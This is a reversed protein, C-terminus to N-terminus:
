SIGTPIVMKSASSALQRYTAARTEEDKLKKYEAVLVNQVTPQMAECFAAIDHLRDFMSENARAQAKRFAQIEERLDQIETEMKLARFMWSKEVLADLRDTKDEIM